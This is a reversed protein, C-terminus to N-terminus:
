RGPRRETGRPASLLFPVLCSVTEKPALRGAHVSPPYDLPSAILREVVDLLAAVDFPKRLFVTSDATFADWRQVTHKGVASMVIMPLKPGRERARAALAWGNLRPMMVDTILLDPTAHAIQELAAQGDPATQVMHGEDELVTAIIDVLAPEDDVILIRSV